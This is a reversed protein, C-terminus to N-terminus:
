GIVQRDLDIQTAKLVVEIHPWTVKGNTAPDSLATIGLKVKSLENQPGVCPQPHLIVSNPCSTPPLKHYRPPRSLGFRARPLALGKSTRSSRSLPASSFSPLLSFARCECACPSASGSASPSTVISVTVILTVSLTVIVTVGITVIVTVDLSIITPVPSPHYSRKLTEAM